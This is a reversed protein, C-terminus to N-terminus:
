GRPAVPATDSPSALWLRIAADIAEALDIAADTERLREMLAFLTSPSVNVSVTAVM